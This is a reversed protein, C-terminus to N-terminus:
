VFVVEIIVHVGAAECLGFEEDFAPQNLLTYANVVLFYDVEFRELVAPIVGNHNIGVGIAKIEGSDKLDRLTQFGGM